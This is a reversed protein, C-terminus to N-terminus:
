KELQAYRAKKEAWEITDGLTKAPNGAVISNKKIRGKVVSGAGIICNDELVTGPLLIARAGIFCNNGITIGQLFYTDKGSSLDLLNAAQMGRAISYDHTLLVVDRSLVSDKGISIINYGTGDIWVSPDIYKPYKEIQVGMKKLADSYLRTYKGADFYNVFSIIKRYLVFVVKKLM